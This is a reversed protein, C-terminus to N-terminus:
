KTVLVQMEGVRVETTATPTIPITGGFSATPTIASWSVVWISSVSPRFVGGPQGQSSKGLFHNCTPSPLDMAVDTYPISNVPCVPPITPLGDGYNVALGTNVANLNVTVVGTTVTRNIPGTTRESPNNVWLWSNFGVLGVKEGTNTPEPTIGIDIPEVQLASVASSVINMVEALSVPTPPVDIGPAAPAPACNNRLNSCSNRQLVPPGSNAPAAGGGSAGAGGGGAGSGGGAAGAGGAGGGGTQMGPAAGSAGGGSPVSIYGGGATVTNGGVAGGGWSDGPAAYASSQTVLMMSMWVVISFMAASSRRFARSMSLQVGGLEASLEPNTSHKTFNHRTM